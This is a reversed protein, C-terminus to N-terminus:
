NQDHRWMAWSSFMFGAAAIGAALWYFPNVALAFALMLLGAIGFFLWTHRMTKQSM